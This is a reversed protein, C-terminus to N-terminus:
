EASSKPDRSKFEDDFEHKSKPEDKPQDKVINIGKPEERKEQKTDDKILPPISNESIPEGNIFEIYLVGVYSVFDLYEDM